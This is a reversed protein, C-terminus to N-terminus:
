QATRTGIAVLEFIRKWGVMGIRDEIAFEALSVATRLRQDQHQPDLISM